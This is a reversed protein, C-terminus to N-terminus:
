DKGDVKFWTNDLLILVLFFIISDGNIWYDKKNLFDVLALVFTGVFISILYRWFYYKIKEKM